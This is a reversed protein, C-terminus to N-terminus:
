IAMGTMIAQFYLASKTLKCHILILIQPTVEAEKVVGPAEMGHVALAEQAEQAVPVVPVVLAM